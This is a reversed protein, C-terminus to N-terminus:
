ALREPSRSTAGSLPALGVPREDADRKSPSSAMPAGNATSAVGDAIPSASPPASTLCRLSANAAALDAQLRRQADLAGALEAELRSITAEYQAVQDATAGGSAEPAGVVNALSASCRAATPAAAPAAPAPPVPAASVPPVPASAAPAISRMSAAVGHGDLANDEDDVLQDLCVVAGLVRAADNMLVRLAKPHLPATDPLRPPQDWDALYEAQERVAERWVSARAILEAGGLKANPTVTAGAREPEGRTAGDGGGGGHGGGGGSCTSRSAREHAELAELAAPTSYEAVHPLWTRLQREAHERAAHSTRLKEELSALATNLTRTMAVLKDRASSVRALEHGRQRHQAELARLSALKDSAELLEAELKRARGSVEDLREERLEMMRERLAEVSTWVNVLLQGREGCHASVQRALEHMGAAYISHLVRYTRQADPSAELM